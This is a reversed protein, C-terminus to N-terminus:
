EKVEYIWKGTRDMYGMQGDAEVRYLGGGANQIYDYEPQLVIQGELDALGFVEPAEVIYKGKEKSPTLKSYLPTFLVAGERNILTWRYGIKVPATEENFPLAARYVGPFAKKGDFRYFGVNNEWNTVVVLSDGAASLRGKLTTKVINGNTDILMKGKGWVDPSVIALGRYFRQAFKFSVPVVEKGAANVFGYETKIRVKALGGYFDDIVSYHFPTLANGAKDLLGWARDRCVWYSGNACPVIKDFHGQHVKEGAVDLIVWEFRANKVIALGNQDHPAAKTLDLKALQRGQADILRYQNEENKIFAVGHGFDQALRYRPEIAWKGNPAIYGYRGKEKCPAMGGSFSGAAQYKPSIVWKGTRDVFGWLMGKRVAAFGESFPLVKQYLCPMIENGEPACLGWLSGKRVLFCGEGGPLVEAYNIPVCIKGNQDIIGKRSVNQSILFFRNDSGQLYSLHEYAIPLIERGTKDITGWKEGLRVIARSHYFNGAKEFRFPVVIQATTDLYGWAAGTVQFWGVPLEEAGPVMTQKQIICSETSWERYSGLHMVSDDEVLCFLGAQTARAMGNEFEGIYAYDRLVIKGERNILGQMGTVFEVRALPLNKETFDRIRINGIEVQTIPKGTKHDIIACKIRYETETGCIQPSFNPKIKQIALSFPLNRFQKYDDFIAPTTGVGSAFDRVGWKERVADHYWEFDGMRFPDRDMAGTPSVSVEINEQRVRITRVKAFSQGDLRNGEEDFAILAYQGRYNSRVTNGNLALEGPALPMVIRGSRHALGCFTDRRIVAYHTNPWGIFGYREGALLDKGGFGVIGWDSPAYQVRWTDPGLAAIEDYKCPLLTDGRVSFLGLKYDQRFVFTTDDFASYGDAGNAVLRGLGAHWVAMTDGHSVGFLPGRLPTCATWEPRVLVKGSRDAIGLGSSDTLTIFEDAQRLLVRIYITKLIERGASDLMGTGGSPGKVAWFGQPEPSINRYFRKGLQGSGIRVLCASDGQHVVAYGNPYAEVGKIDGSFVIRGEYDVLFVIGDREALYFRGRVLRIREYACPLVERGGTDILGCKGDQYVPSRGNDDFAFAADYTPQVVLAGNADMLGWKQAVKIPYLRQASAQSSVFFCFFIILVRM